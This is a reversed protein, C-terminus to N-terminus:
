FRAHAKGSFIDVDLGKRNAEREEREEDKKDEMAQEKTIRKEERESVAIYKKIDGINKMSDYMIKADWPKWNDNAVVYRGERIIINGNPYFNIDFPGIKKHQRTLHRHAHYAGYIGAGVGVLAGATIYPHNRAFRYASQANAKLREIGKM